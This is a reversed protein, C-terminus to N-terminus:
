NLRHQPSLTAAQLHTHATQKRSITKAETKFETKFQTKSKNQTQQTQLSQKLKKNQKTKNATIPKSADCPHCGGTNGTVFNKGRHLGMSLCEERWPVPPKRKKAQNNHDTPTLPLPRSLDVIRARPQNRKALKRRVSKTNSRGPGARKNIEIVPSRRQVKPRLASTLSLIPQANPQRIGLM